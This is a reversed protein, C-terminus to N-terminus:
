YPFGGRPFPTPGPQPPTFTPLDWNPLQADTVSANNDDPDCSAWTGDGDADKVWIGQRKYDSAQLYRGYYYHWTESYFPQRALDNQISTELDDGLISLNLNYSGVGAAKFVMRNPHSAFNGMWSLFNARVNSNDFHEETTLWQYGDNGMYLKQRLFISQYYIFHTEDVNYALVWFDKTYDCRDITNNLGDNDIDPDVTDLQGDRDTDACLAVPHTADNVSLLCGPREDVDCIGDGRTRGPIGESDYCCGNWYPDAIGPIPREDAQTLEDCRDVNNSVGDADYDNDCLDGVGNGLTDTQTRNPVMRCNDVADLVGDGDTDDDCANGRGDHDMDLQDANAVDPCNDTASDWGDGDPDLGTVTDPPQCIDGMPNTDSNVQDPNYRTPCNDCLHRDVEDGTCMIDKYGDGHVDGPGLEIDDAPAICDSTLDTVNADQDNMDCRTVLGDGDCDLANGNPCEAPPPPPPPPPPPVPPTPNPDPCVGGPCTVPGGGEDKKGSGGCAVLFAILIFPIFKKMVGM